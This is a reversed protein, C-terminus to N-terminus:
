QAGRQQASRFLGYVVFHVKIGLITIKFCNMFRNPDYKVCFDLNKKTYEHGCYVKTEPSLDKLKNLSSLM